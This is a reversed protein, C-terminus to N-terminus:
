AIEKIQKPANEIPFLGPLADNNKEENTCLFLNTEKSDAKIELPCYWHICFFLGRSVVSYAHSWDSFLDDLMPLAVDLSIDVSCMWFPVSHHLFSLKTTFFM